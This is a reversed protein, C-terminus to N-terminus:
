RRGVRHGRAKSEDVYVRDAPRFTVSEGYVLVRLRRQRPKRYEGVSVQWRTTPSNRLLENGLKGLLGTGM